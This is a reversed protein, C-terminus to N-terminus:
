KTEPKRTTRNNRGSSLMIPTGENLTTRVSSNPSPLGSAITNLRTIIAATSSM